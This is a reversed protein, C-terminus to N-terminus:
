RVPPFASASSGTPETTPWSRAMLQSLTVLNVDRLLTESVLRARATAPGCVFNAMTEGVTNPFITQWPGPTRNTSLSTGNVDYAANALVRRQRGSCDFEILSQSFYEGRERARFIMVFWATTRQENGTVRTPDMLVAATETLSVAAYDTAWAPGTFLVGLLFPMLAWSRM